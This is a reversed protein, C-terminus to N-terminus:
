SPRISSSRQMGASAPAKLIWDDPLAWGGSHYRTNPKRLLLGRRGAKPVAPWPRSHSSRIGTRPTCTAARAGARWNWCWVARGATPRPLLHPTSSWPSKGAPASSPRQTTPGACWNTSRGRTPTALVCRSFMLGMRIKRPTRRARTVCDPFFNRRRTDYPRPTAGTTTGRVPPSDRGNLTPRRGVLTKPAPGRTPVLRRAPGSSAAM